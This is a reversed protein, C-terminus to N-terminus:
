IHGEYRKLNVIMFSTRLVIKKGRFPTVLYRHPPPTPSFGGVLCRESDPLVKLELHSKKMVGMGESNLSHHPLPPPSATLALLSPNCWLFLCLM